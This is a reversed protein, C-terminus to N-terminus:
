REVIGLISRYSCVQVPLLHLSGRGMCSSRWAVNSEPDSISVSVRDADWGGIYVRGGLLKVVSNSGEVPGPEPFAFKMTENSAM